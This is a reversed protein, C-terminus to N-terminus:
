SVDNRTLKKEKRNFRWTPHLVGYKPLIYSSKFAHKVPSIALTNKWQSDQFKLWKGDVKEMKEIEEDM